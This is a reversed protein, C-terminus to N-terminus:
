LGLKKRIEPNIREPNWPPDFSLEIEPKYGNEELRKAIERVILGGWPCLPSTLTMVIKVNKGKVSIKYVLGLDLIDIGIEPDKVEKLIEEIRKKENM